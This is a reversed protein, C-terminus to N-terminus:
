KARSNLEIARVLFSTADVTGNRLTILNQTNEAASSRLMGLNTGVRGVGLEHGNLEFEVDGDVDIGNAAGDTDFSVTIPSLSEITVGLQNNPPGAGPLGGPTSSWEFPEHWQGTGGIWFLDDFLQGFVPATLFALAVTTVVLVEFRRKM